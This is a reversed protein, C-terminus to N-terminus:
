LLTRKIARFWCHWFQNVKSFKFKFKHEGMLKNKFLYMWRGCVHKRYFDFYNWDFNRELGILKCLYYILCFKSSRLDELILIDILSYRKFKCELYFLAFYPHCFGFVRAISIIHGNIYPPNFNSFSIINSNPVREFFSIRIKNQWKNIVYKGKCIGFRSKFPCKTMKKWEGNNM